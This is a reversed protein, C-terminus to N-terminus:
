SFFCIYMAVIIPLQFHSFIGSYAKVGLTIERPPPIIFILLVDILALLLAWWWHESCFLVILIFVFRGAMAVLGLLQGLVSTFPCTSAIIRYAVFLWFWLETFM